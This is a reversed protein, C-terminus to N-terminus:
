RNMTKRHKIRFSSPSLGTNKKFHNSFHATEIFGLSYSIEKISKNNNKLFSKALAITKDSIWKSSSKGTKSKIVQSFYNPNLNQLRAYDQSQFLEKSKHMLVDRFHMELNEKFVKVIQSRTSGEDIPLYDSWFLEKIKLLLVVFLNGIIKSKFSSNGGFELAIQKYLQKIEDSSNQSLKQPPVIESLLFPFEEFISPHVNVKLFEESLTILYAEKLKKFEFQKLHGPNTFYITDAHYNFTQNDTTYSGKGDKIFVFSYFNTRFVPSLYPISKHLDLLSDISFGVEQEFPINLSRYLDSVKEYFPIESNKSM